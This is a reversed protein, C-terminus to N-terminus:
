LDLIEFRSDIYNDVPKDLKKELKKVIGDLDCPPCIYGEAEYKKRDYIQINQWYCNCKSCRGSVCISM